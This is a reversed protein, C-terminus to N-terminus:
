QVYRRDTLGKSEGTYLWDRVNIGYYGREFGPEAWGEYTAFQAFIRHPAAVRRRRRLHSLCQALWRRPRTTMRPPVVCTGRACPPRAHDGEGPSSTRGRFANPSPRM